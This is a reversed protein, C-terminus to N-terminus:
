GSLRRSSPRLTASQKLFAASAYARSEVEPHQLSDRAPSPARISADWGRAGAPRVSVRRRVMCSTGLVLVGLAGRDDLPGCGRGRLGLAQARDVDLALDLGVGSGGGVGEGVLLDGLADLLM